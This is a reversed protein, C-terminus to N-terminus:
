TSQEPSGRPVTTAPASSTRQTTVAADRRLRSARSRVLRRAREVEPPIVRRAQVLWPLARLFERAVKGFCRARVADSGVSIGERLASDLPLRLCAVYLANRLLLHRRSNANRHMSPQHHVILEPVYAMRWGSAYLDLALLAEEGGIFLRPDFGGAQLLAGRRVVSAGALFGLLPVGPLGSGELPSREMVLCTPDIRGQPEVVVQACLVAVRPHARLLRQARTLAGPEWWTDDDCLAVLPTRAIALGVNRAAAGLNTGLRVVVAQPYVARLLPATDDDSANDIVIVRAAENLALARGVTALVEHARNHTIVVISVAEAKV